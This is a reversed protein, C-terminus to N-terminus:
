SVSSAVGGIRVLSAWEQVVFSVWVFVDSIVFLKQTLQPKWGLKVLGATLSPTGHASPGM